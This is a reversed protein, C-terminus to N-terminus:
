WKLIPQIQKASPGFQKLSRTLGFGQPNACFFENGSTRRVVILLGWGFATRRAGGPSIRVHGPKVSCPNENLALGSVNMSPDRTPTGLLRPSGLKPVFIYDTKDPTAKCSAFRASVRELPSSVPIAIIRPKEREQHALSKEVEHKRSKRRSCTAGTWSLM